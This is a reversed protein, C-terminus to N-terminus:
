KAYVPFISVSVEDGRRPITLAIPASAVDGVPHQYAHRLVMRERSRGSADATLIRLDPFQNAGYRSALTFSVSIEYPSAALRLDRVILGAADDKPQALTYGAIGGSLPTIPKGSPGVVSSIQFALGGGLGLLCCLVFVFIKM